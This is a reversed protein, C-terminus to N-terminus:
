STLRVKTCIYMGGHTEEDAQRCLIYLQNPFFHVSEPLLLGDMDM